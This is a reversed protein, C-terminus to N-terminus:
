VYLSQNTVVYKLTKVPIEKLKSLFAINGTLESIKEMEAAINNIKLLAKVFEGLFIHKEEQLQQLVLKCETVNECGCWKGVYKILDFHITYDIGSSIGYVEEKQSYETYKNIFSNITDLLFPDDVNPKYSKVDDQVNINTFCSFLAVLQQTNLSDFTKDEFLNAFVLCHIERLQSAIQGKLTLTVVENDTSVFGNKKLISMVNGIGSCLYSNMKGMTIQIDISEQQKHVFREYVKQDSDITNFHDQLKQIQRETEKRKKNVVSPLKKKLEIYEQITEQPTKLSGITSQINRLEMNVKHLEVSQEKIQADLDGTVMSKSAFQEMNEDGISLLNLLLQFSIKFKSTLTQPKGDMM